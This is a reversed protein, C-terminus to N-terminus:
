LIWYALYRRIGEQFLQVAEEISAVGFTDVLRNGECEKAILGTGHGYANSKVVAM